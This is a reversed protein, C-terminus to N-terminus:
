GHAYFAKSVIQWTGNIKLLHFYDTYRVGGLNDTDVRASAATGVVDLFALAPLADPSKPMATDVPGFLADEVSGGAMNGDADVYGLSAGPVFSPRMVSSDAQAAGEYYRQIVELVALFEQAYTPTEM